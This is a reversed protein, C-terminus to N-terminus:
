QNWAAQIVWLVLMINLSQNIINLFNVYTNTETNLNLNLYILYAAMLTVFGKISLLATFVLNSTSPHVNSCSLRSWNLLYVGGEGNCCAAKRSVHM